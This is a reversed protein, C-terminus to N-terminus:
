AAASRLAAAVPPLDADELTLMDLLFADGAIRGVIAPTSRRLRRALADPSLGAVRVRVARSPIGLGPLAGAGAHGLSAEADAQCVGGLLALLRDARAQLEAETQALMRLVPIRTATDPGEYLRLTADLAALTMKDLRLARMLPHSRLRDVLDTRGALLGAQPGGLLKDGSGAVIDAGAALSRRVTPAHRALGHPLTALTFSGLDDMLVLGHARALGSLAAVETQETFGVMVFNSQHIKLLMRTQPGIAAAYDALRTRNTSGVEVLRAGGQQIIDPIRFGGGIEVLEGRSVVVEGGAGLASLALLLAAAANNVALAAEAGTLRCIAEEAGAGRAGRRGTDTDYELTCFGRAARAAADAATDALPARGLNTHVVIGTANIAPRLASTAEADAAMRAEAAAVLAVDAPIAHAAGTRLAQRLAALEARLADALAARTWRGLAGATEAAQLLRELPPVGRLDQGDAM